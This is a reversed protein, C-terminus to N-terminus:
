DSLAAKVLALAESAAAAFATVTNPDAEAAAYWNGPLLGHEIKATYEFYKVIMFIFACAITFILNVADAFIGGWSSAVVRDGVALGEVGDGLM